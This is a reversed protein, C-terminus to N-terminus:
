RSKGAIEKAREIMDGLPDPSPYPVAEEGHRTRLADVREQGNFEDDLQDWEDAFEASVLDILDLLAYSDALECAEPIDRLTSITDIVQDNSVGLKLLTFCAEYRVEWEPDALLPIVHPAANADGVNGLAMIVWKRVDKDADSLAEILENDAGGIFGLSIACAMRVHKNDDSRFHCILSERVIHDISEERSETDTYYTLGLAVSHRVRWYPNEMLHILVPLARPDPEDSHSLRVAALYRVEQNESASKEALEEFTGTVFEAAAKATEESRKNRDASRQSNGSEDMDEELLSRMGTRSKILSELTYQNTAYTLQHITYHRLESMYPLKANTVEMPNRAAVRFSMAQPHPPRPHLSTM